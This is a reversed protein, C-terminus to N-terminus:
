DMTACYDAYFKDLVDLGKKTCLGRLSLFIQNLFVTEMSYKRYLQTQMVLRNSADIMYAIFEYNLNELFFGEEVGRKMFSVMLTRHDCHRHDFYALLMPYKELDSYFIPNTMRIEEVKLKFSYLLIDMVNAGTESYDRMKRKMRESYLKVGEILLEEKNAFIEYLTRKSISLGTAIDDMKVARIGKAAFARMAADLIRDALIHKYESINKNDYM